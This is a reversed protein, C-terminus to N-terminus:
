SSCIELILESLNPFFVLFEDNVAYRAYKNHEADVVEAIFTLAGPIPERDLRYLLGPLDPLTELDPLHFRDRRSFVRQRRRM